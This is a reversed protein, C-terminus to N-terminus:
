VAIPSSGAAILEQQQFARVGKGSLIAEAIRQGLLPPVANGVQIYQDTRAGCFEFSDPFSQLRAAERVTL